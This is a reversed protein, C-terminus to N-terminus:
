KVTSSYYYNYLCPLAKLENYHMMAYQDQDGKWAGSRSGSISRADAQAVMGM